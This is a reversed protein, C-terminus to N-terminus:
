DVRKQRRTLNLLKDEVTKILYYIWYESCKKQQRGSRLLVKYYVSRLKTIATSASNNRKKFAQDFSSNYQIHIVLSSCFTVNVEKM